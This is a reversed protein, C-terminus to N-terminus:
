VLVLKMLSVVFQLLLVVVLRQVQVNVRVEQGSIRIALQMVLVRM